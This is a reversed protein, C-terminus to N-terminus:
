FLFHNTCETKYAMQIYEYLVDPNLLKEYKKQNLNIRVINANDEKAVIESFADM